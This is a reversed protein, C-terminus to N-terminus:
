SALRARASIAVDWLYSLLSINPKINQVSRRKVNNRETIKTLCSMVVFCVHILAYTMCFPIGHNYHFITNRILRLVTSFLIRSRPLHAQALPLVCLDYRNLQVIRTGSSEVVPTSQEPTSHSGFANPACSFFHFFSKSLNSLIIRYM